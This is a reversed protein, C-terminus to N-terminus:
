KEDSGAVKNYVGTATDGIKQGASKAADSVDDWTIQKAGDVVKQGTEQAWQGANQGAEKAWQGASSAHEGATDVAGGLWDKADDFWGAQVTAAIMALAFVVFLKMKCILFLLIVLILFAHFTQRSTSSSRSAAYYPDLESDVSRESLYYGESGTPGVYDSTGYLVLDWKLLEADDWGDNDVELTWTGTAQEGWCHTTMFAWDRFGTRSTDRVRKALLTSRTGSPSILYVQVDGRKLANLTIIAQVHELYKVENQSDGACATTFMQLHLRNANPITKYPAPYSARCARQAPVTRWVRALMAGANLLGYGFSHSVNRGVGNTKWDGAKLGAPNSTRVVIHQMDRWTLRPNAELTLAAIGAVLPASASTGTHTKTCSHHLDTTAIMKEGTAGSSYATGLTSSCAESYWPINGNETASSISLTFISNTYGDCNCSDAEKGGNGSAWIFISGLGGRGQRIGMEFAQKTLIAPGDVTRGDDDPGWSASYIDIHQNNYSLSSAEVADTVEGDLMRIGGIKANFAIGVVCLSNNYVAAVEGACRTGHRNEDSFEYRPTPDMDGDNVDFSAEPDFNPAIDPHTVELGDDLITVVVGRGTYGLEWAEKVNHDVLGPQSDSRHLYWMDKWFPDNPVGYHKRYSHGLENTEVFIRDHSNLRFDMPHVDVRRQQMHQPSSMVGSSYRQNHAPPQDFFRFDRKVRRKSHQQELWLVNPDRSLTTSTLSRTKRTKRKVRSDKFLFYESGPIVQGMYNYGYKEAMQKAKVESGNVIRVAWQNTYFKGSKTGTSSLDASASLFALACLLTGVLLSRMEVGGRRKLKTRWIAEVTFKSGWTRCRMAEPTDDMPHSSSQSTSSHSLEANRRNQQYVSPRSTNHWRLHAKLHSSKGYVKLCGPIHCTHKENQRNIPLGRRALDACNPCECTRSAASSRNSYRPSKSAQRSRAPSPTQSATTVPRGNNLPVNLNRLVDAAQTVQQPNLSPM